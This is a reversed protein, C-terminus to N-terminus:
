CRISRISLIVWAFIAFGVFFSLVVAGLFVAGIVIFAAVIVAAIQVLPNQSFQAKYPGQTM